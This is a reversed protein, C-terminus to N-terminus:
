PQTYEGAIIVVLAQLASTTQPGTSIILRIENETAVRTLSGMSGDIHKAISKSLEVRGQEETMDAM